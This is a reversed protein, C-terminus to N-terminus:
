GAHREFRSGFCLEVLKCQVRTCTGLVKDKPGTTHRRKPANDTRPNMSQRQDLRRQVAPEGEHHGSQRSDKGATSFTNPVPVTPAGSPYRTRAPYLGSHLSALFKARTCYLTRHTGEMTANLCPLSTPLISSTGAQAWSPRIRLNIM